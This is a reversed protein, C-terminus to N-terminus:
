IYNAGIMHSTYSLTPINQYDASPFDLILTPIFAAGDWKYLRSIGDYEILSLMPNVGDISFMHCTRDGDVVAITADSTVNFVQVVVPAAVGKLKYLTPKLQSGASPDNQNLVLMYTYGCNSFTDISSVHVGPITAGAQRVFQSSINNFRYVIQNEVIGSLNTWKRAIMYLHDTVGDNYIYPHLQSINTIDTTNDFSEIPVFDLTASDYKYVVCASLNDQGNVDASNSCFLYPEANGSGNNYYIAEISDFKGSGGPLTQMHQITILTPDAHNLLELVRKQTSGGSYDSYESVVIFIRNDYQVSDISRIGGMLIVNAASDLISPGTRISVWSESLNVGNALVSVSLDHTTTGGGSDTSKVLVTHNLSVNANEISFIHQASVDETDDFPNNTLTSFKGNNIYRMVAGTGQDGITSLLRRTNPKLM